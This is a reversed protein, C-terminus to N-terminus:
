GDGIRERMRIREIRRLMIERAANEGEVYARGKPFTPDLEYAAWLRRETLDYADIAWEVTEKFAHELEAVQAEAEVTAM